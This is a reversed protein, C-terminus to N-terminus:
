LSFANFNDEYIEAVFQSLTLVIFSLTTKICTILLLKVDSLRSM